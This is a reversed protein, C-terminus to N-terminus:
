IFPFSLTPIFFLKIGWILAIKLGRYTLISINYSWICYRLPLLLALGNRLDNANPNSEWRVANRREQTGGFGLRHANLDLQGLVLVPLLPRAAPLGLRHDAVIVAVLLLVVIYTAGCRQGGGRKM